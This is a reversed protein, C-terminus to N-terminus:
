PMRLQTKKVPKQIQAKMKKSTTKKVHTRVIPFNPKTLKSNTLKHAYAAVSEIALSWPGSVNKKGGNTKSAAPVRKRLPTAQGLMKVAVSLPIVRRNAMTLKQIKWGSLATQFGGEKLAM